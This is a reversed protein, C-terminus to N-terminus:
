LAQRAAPEFRDPQGNVLDVLVRKESDKMAGQDYAQRTLEKVDDATIRGDALAARAAARVNADCDLLQALKGGAESNAAIRGLEYELPHAAPEDPIEFTPANGAPGAISM